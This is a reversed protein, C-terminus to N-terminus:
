TTGYQAFHVTGHPQYAMPFHGTVNHKSAHHPIHPVGQQVEESYDPVSGAHTVIYLPSRMAFSLFWKTENKILCFLEFQAKFGVEKQL